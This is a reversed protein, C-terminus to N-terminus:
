LSCQMLLSWFFWSKLNWAKLKYIKKGLMFSTLEAQKCMDRGTHRPFSPSFPIYPHTSHGPIDTASFYRGCHSYPTHELCSILKISCCLSLFFYILFSLAANIWAPKIKTACHCLLVLLIGFIYGHSLSSERKRRMRGRRRMEQKSVWLRFSLLTKQIPNKKGM